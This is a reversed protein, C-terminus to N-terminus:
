LNSHAWRELPMGVRAYLLAELVIGNTNLTLARNPLQTKEYFGAFVGQKPDAIWQMTRYAHETDRTQFLVHWGLAAKTSSGQFESADKGHATIANWAAGDVYISNYIFWPARDINDESWATVNGTARTRHIQALLVRGAFDAPVSKFGTELGDLVYPESTVYNHAVSDHMDRADVPVKVGYMSVEISHAYPNVADPATVGISELARAAYQEYGLRGEQNWSEKGKQADVGMLHGDKALRATQWRATVAKCAEAHRPYRAAVINLWIVLRGLDLASFGTDRRITVEGYGVPALTAANYAKNPLEGHYLEIRQLSTLVEGMWADFDAKSVLGLERASTLGALQSGVDWMTTAPFGAASSVLGTPLRNKEFYTWAAKAVWQEDESGIFRSPAPEPTSRTEAYTLGLHAGLAIAGVAVGLALNIGVSRARRTAEPFSSM